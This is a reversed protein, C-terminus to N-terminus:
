RESCVQYAFCLYPVELGVVLALFAGVRGTSGGQSVTLM